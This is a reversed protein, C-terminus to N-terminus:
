CCHYLGPGRLHKQLITVQSGRDGIRLFPNHRISSTGPSWISQARKLYRRRDAIGNTGGNIRKTIAVFESRDALQNLKHARWYECAIRLSIEPSKALHPKAELDIGLIKGFRRYNSRGTLQFIGRGRYKAGDAMTRNGLDRRRGYRAHFYHSNGYETLTRFGATEYAAQALFHSLRLENASVGYEELLFSSKAIGELLERRGRPCLRRLEDYTLFFPTRLSMGKPCVFLGSGKQHFRGTM